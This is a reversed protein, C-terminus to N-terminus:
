NSVTTAYFSTGSLPAGTFTITSGSITYNTTPIQVVGGVFVMINTLPDPATATAAVELNFTTTVGDFGVSIDDFQIYQYKSFPAWALNGAGDTTLASGNGGDANPWVYENYVAPNNTRVYVDRIPVNVAVTVRGTADITVQPVNDVNGYTGAAVGTSTGELRWTNTASEWRYQNQGVLPIVPYLENNVPSSPFSLLAM